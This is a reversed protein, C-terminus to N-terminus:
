DEDAEEDDEKVGLADKAQQWYREKIKQISLGSGDSLAATLGNLDLQSAIQLAKNGIMEKTPRTTAASRIRNMENTLAQANVLKLLEAEGHIQIAEEISEALDVKATGVTKRKATVEKEISKM